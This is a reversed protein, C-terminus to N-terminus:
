KKVLRSTTNDSYRLLVEPNFNPGIAVQIKPISNSYARTVNEIVEQNKEIVEKKRYERERFVGNLKNLEDEARKNNM